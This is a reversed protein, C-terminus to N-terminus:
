RDILQYRSIKTEFIVYHYYSMRCRRIQQLLIQLFSLFPDNSVYFSYHQYITTNRLLLYFYFFTPKGFYPNYTVVIYLHDTDISISISYIPDSFLSAVIKMLNVVDILLLCLLEYIETQVLDVMLRYNIILFHGDM